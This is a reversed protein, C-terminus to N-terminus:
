EEYSWIKDNNPDFFGNNYDKLFNEWAKVIQEFENECNYAREKPLHGESVLFSYEIQDAGYTWCYMNYKRQTDLGHVDSHANSHVGGNEIFLAEELEYGYGNYLMIDLGSLTDDDGITLSLMYASFQDVVNEELGSIPIDYIDILAHGIEHYFTNLIISYGYNTIYDLDGDYYHYLEFVYDIYEYCLVIQKKDYSYYANIEGCEKNLIEVDHPLLLVDNLFEVEMELIQNNKLYNISTDDGDYASNPNEEYTIYFDGVDPYSTADSQISNTPKPGIIGQSVM